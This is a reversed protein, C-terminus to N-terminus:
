LIDKNYFHFLGLGVGNNWTKDNRATNWEDNRATNWGDNRAVLPPTAIEKPIVESASTIVLVTDIALLRLAKSNM